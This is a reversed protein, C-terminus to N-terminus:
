RKLGKENQDVALDTSNENILHSINRYNYAGIQVTFFVGETPIGKREAPQSAKEELERLLKQNNRKEEELRSIESERNDKIQKVKEIEDNLSDSRQQANAMDNKLKEYKEIDYYYEKMEKKIERYSKKDKKEDDQAVVHYSVHIIVIFFLCYKIIKM